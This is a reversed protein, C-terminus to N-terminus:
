EKSQLLCDITDVFTLWEQKQFQYAECGKNTLSYYKRLHGSSEESFDSTILGTNMLKRLLQYVTGNAIDIHQSLNKAIDYGYSDHQRLLSLVCLELVGKKYQNSM